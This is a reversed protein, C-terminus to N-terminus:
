TNKCIKAPKTSINKRGFLISKIDTIAKEDSAPSFTMTVNYEGIQLTESPQKEIQIKENLGTLEKRIPKVMFGKKAEIVAYLKPINRRMGFVFFM